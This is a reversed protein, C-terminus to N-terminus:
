APGILRLHLDMTSGGNFTGSTSYTIHASTDAYIPIAAVASGTVVTNASAIFTATLAVGNQTWGITTTITTTGVTTTSVYLNGMVFYFGTVPTTFLTTLSINSANGTSDVQKQINLGVQQWNSNSVAPASNLNAVLCIWYTGNYSVEDGIVYSTISSWAGKFNYAVNGSAHTKILRVYTSGDPLQDQNQAVNASSSGVGSGAPPTVSITAPTSGSSPTVTVQSVKKKIQIDATTQSTSLLGSNSGPNGQVPAPMLRYVPLSGAIQSDAIDTQMGLGAIAGSQYRDRPEPLSGAGAVIPPRNEFQLKELDIEKPDILYDKNAM